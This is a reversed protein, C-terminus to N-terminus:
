EKVQLLDLSSRNSIAVAGIISGIAGAVFYFGLYLISRIDVSLGEGIYVLGIGGLLLGVLIVLMQERILRRRTQSKTAGLVRMVAADKINQFMLLMSLGIGILLSVVLVIPYLLYLLNLNQELQQVVYILEEDWLTFTLPVPGRHRNILNEMIERFERSERNRDTYM